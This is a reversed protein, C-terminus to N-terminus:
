SPEVLSYQLELVFKDTLNLSNMQEPPLYSGSSDLSIQEGIKDLDEKEGEIVVICDNEKIYHSRM